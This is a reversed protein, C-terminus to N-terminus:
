ADRPNDVGISGVPSTVRELGTIEKQHSYIYYLIFLLVFLIVFYFITTYLLVKNQKINNIITTIPNSM